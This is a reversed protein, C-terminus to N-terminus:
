VEIEKVPMVHSPDLRYKRLMSVHVVHHIWDLEPPLHLCYGVPGIRKIVKLFVKDGVQYEIDRRRLDAYSKQKDPAVKLREYILRVKNEMEQVLDLGVIRREGMKSWCLPTQGDLQAHYTTSVYLKLGLADQLGKWFRSSFCPDRDSIISVRVGYLQVIESIYLKALKQLSYNTRVVLFLAHLIRIPQLLGSPYQHDAKVKQCVMCISVFEAVDLKLDLWWFLERLDCYMKNSSPHMAYPSSHAVILIMRRLVKDDLICLGRLFQSGQLEALSGGDGTVSLHAFMVRLEAMSKWSLADVVMNSKNFNLERQTLLYELSKHDMYVTCRESYLYHHWIKLTFVVAGLALDHTPYNREHSKLQRSAYAVVKGDEM